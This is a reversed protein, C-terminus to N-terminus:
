SEAQACLVSRSRRLDGRLSDCRGIWGHGPAIGAGGLTHRHPKSPLSLQAVARYFTAGRSRQLAGRHGKFGLDPLPACPKAIGLSARAAKGAPFAGATGGRRKWSPRGAAPARERGDQAPCALLAWHGQPPSRRRQTAAAGSVGADASM